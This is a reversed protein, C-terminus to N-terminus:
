PASVLRGREVRATGAPNGQDDWSRVVGHPTGDFLPTERAIRGNPHWERFVGDLRGHRVNVRSKRAGDPYWRTRVGHSVGSRFFEEVEIQGDEFWGRTPGDARGARITVETRRVGPRWESVLLGSFPQDAGPRFLVGERLELEARVATEPARSRGGLGWGSVAVVALVVAVFLCPHWAPRNQM